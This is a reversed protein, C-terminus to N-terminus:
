ASAKKPAAWAYGHKKYIPEFVDTGPQPWIEKYGKGTEMYLAHMAKAIDKRFFPDTIAGFFTEWYALAEMECAVARPASIDALFYVKYRKRGTGEWRSTINYGM